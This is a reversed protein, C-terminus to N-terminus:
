LLVNIVEKAEKTDWISLYFFVTHGHADRENPNAGANLLLEVKLATDSSILRTANYLSESNSTYWSELM